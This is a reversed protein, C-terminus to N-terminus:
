EHTMTLGDEDDHDISAAQELQEYPNNEAPLEFGDSPEEFLVEGLPEDILVPISGSPSSTGSTTQRALYSRCLSVGAADFHTWAANRYHKPLEALEEPLHEHTAQLLSWGPTLLPFPPAFQLHDDWDMQELALLIRLDFPVCGYQSQMYNALGPLARKASRSARAAYAFYLLTSFDVHAGYQIDRLVELITSPEIDTFPLDGSAVVSLLTDRLNRIRGSKAEFDHRFNSKQLADAHGSPEFALSALRGNELHVFGIHEPIAPIM